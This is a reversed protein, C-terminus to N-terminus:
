AGACYPYGALGMGTLCTRADGFCQQHFERNPEFGEFANAARTMSRNVPWSKPNGLHLESPPRQLSPSPTFFARIQHFAWWCPHACYHGRARRRTVSIMATPRPLSLWQQDGGARSHGQRRKVPDRPLLVLSPASYTLLGKEYSNEM